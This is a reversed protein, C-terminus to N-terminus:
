PEDFRARAAAIAISAAKQAIEDYAEPDNSEVPPHHEYEIQTSDWGTRKENLWRTHFAEIVDVRRGGGGCDHGETAEKYHSRSQTNPWVRVEISDAAGTQPNRVEGLFGIRIPRTVSGGLANVEDWVIREGPAAM